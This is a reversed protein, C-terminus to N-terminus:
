KKITLAKLVSVTTQIDDVKEELDDLRQFKDNVGQMGELLLQIDRNTVNEQYLKIDAIDRKLPEVESQVIQRIAQLLEKDDM